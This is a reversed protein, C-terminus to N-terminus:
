ISLMHGTGQIMKLAGIFHVDRELSSQNTDHTLICKVLVVVIEPLNRHRPCREMRHAAPLTAVSPWCFVLARDKFRAEASRGMKESRGGWSKDQSCIHLLLNPLLFLSAPSLASFQGTPQPPSVPSSDPGPLCPSLPTHTSPMRTATSIPHASCSFAASPWLRSPRLSSVQQNESWLPHSKQLIFSKLYLLCLMLAFALNNMFYLTKRKRGRDEWEKKFKPCLKIFLEPELLNVSWIVCCIM